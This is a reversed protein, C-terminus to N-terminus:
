TELHKVAYTLIEVAVPRSPRLESCCAMPRTGFFDADLEVQGLRQFTVYGSVQISHHAMFPLLAGM